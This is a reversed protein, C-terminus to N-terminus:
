SLTIFRSIGDYGSFITDCQEKTPENGVGFIQTLDFIFPNKVYLNTGASLGKSITFSYAGSNLNCIASIRNYNQSPILEIYDVQTGFVDSAGIPIPLTNSHIQLRDTTNISDTKYDAGYYLKHEGSIVGFFVSFRSWYSVYESQEGSVHFIRNGSEILFNQHTYTNNLRKYFSAVDMDVFGPNPFLNVGLLDSSGQPILEVDDAFGTDADWVLPLDTGLKERIADATAEFAGGNALYIM